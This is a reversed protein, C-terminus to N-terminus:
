LIDCLFIADCSKKKKTQNNILVLIFQSNGEKFISSKKQTANTNTLTEHM